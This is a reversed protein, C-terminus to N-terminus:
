ASQPKFMVIGAPARMWKRGASDMTVYDGIYVHPEEIEGFDGLLDQRRMPQQSSDPWIVGWDHWKSGDFIAFGGSTGVWLNDFEDIMLSKMEGYLRSCDKETLRKWKKGNWVMLGGERRGVWINENRDVIFCTIEDMHKLGLPFSCVSEWVGSRNSLFRTEKRDRCAIWPNSERDSGFPLMFDTLIGKNGDVIKEWVNSSLRYIGHAFTATWVRDLKDIYLDVIRADKSLFGLQGYEYIMASRGDFRCLGFEYFALWLRNAGDVAMVPGIPKVPLGREGLKYDAWSTGDTLFLGYEKAPVGLGQSIWVAMWVHSSQGAVCSDVVADAPLSSNKSMFHHWHGMLGKPEDMPRPNGGAM